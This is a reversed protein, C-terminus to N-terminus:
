KKALAADCQKLNERLATLEKQDYERLANQSQLKLFIDLSRQFSERAKRWHDLHNPMATQALKIQINGISQWSLAIDRQPSTDDPDGGALDERLRLAKEQSELSSKLDGVLLQVNGMLNYSNALVGRYSTNNPDIIILYEQIEIAKKYNQIAAKLKERKTAIDGMKKYSLGLDYRAQMNLVDSRAMEEALRMMKQYSEFSRSVDMDELTEGAQAYALWLARKVNTDNPHAAVLPELISFAKDFEQMAGKLDNSWALANGIKIHCRGADRLVFENKPQLLLLSDLIAHAKRYQQLAEETNGNWHPVDGYLMQLNALKRKQEVDQPLETILTERLVVARKYNELAGKTDSSYWTTLATHEYNEALADRIDVNEGDVSLLSERIARAKKYSSLAGNLDGLNPQNPYGQVDGVKEYASALEKQLSPDNSSEQALSDLYELARKVVLRRATTSGPLKEIAPNIEFLFTNALKRVDNFRKEARARQAEARRAQTITAIIGAFLSLCILATAAVGVSHRKIFKMSRYGFTDPRALVPLGELHRRIDESFREVSAYRRSPEKKLAKMVINDLDGRLVTPSYPLAPTPPFSSSDRSSERVGGSKWERVRLWADSPKTPEMECIARAIEEPAHSKIQYPRYGCLLEYLVIGLSYVDSATTMPQGRVQEPSAYDPTMARVATVTQESLHESDILKAIGFDLLKPAGDKTVLINGPKIDRHIVLNRHAYSVADCVARFLKLREATSLKNEDCYRNLSVGEVYEMVIYPSGDETTGGDLLRAINPHDLSALIQREHRFHRRMEETDFGRQLLKIAVQKQYQDDDRQALFVAGMGGHGIEQLVKYSGIRKGEIGNKKGEDEWLGSAFAIAPTKIFNEAEDQLSLLSEVEGRLVLDSACEKSLFAEREVLALELASLVINEIKQWREPTM